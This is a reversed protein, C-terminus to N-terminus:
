DPRHSRRTAVPRIKKEQQRPTLTVIPEGICLGILLVSAPSPSASTVSLTAAEGTAAFLKV